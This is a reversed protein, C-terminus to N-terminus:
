PTSKEAREAPEGVHFRVGVGLLASILPTRYAEVGDLALTTRTANAFVDGHAFFGVTDGLRAEVEARPGLAFFFTNDTRPVDVEYGAGRLAGMAVVGCFAVPGVHGCPALQGLALASEVEGTAPPTADGRVPLDFRGGGALSFAGYRLGAHASFGPAVAPAALFAVHGGAGFFFSLPTPPEAPAQLAPPAPPSAPPAPPPAPPAAPPLPTPPPPASPASPAEGPARAFSSPDLAVAVAFTTASSLESCGKADSELMRGGLPAGSADTRAIRASLKSGERLMTVRTTTSAADAFPDYGLRAAIAERLETETPCGDAGDGREYILRSTARPAPAPQALAVAPSACALVVSVRAVLTRMPGAM